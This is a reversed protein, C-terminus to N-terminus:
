SAVTWLPVYTSTNVTRVLKGQRPPTVPPQREHGEIEIVIDLQSVELLRMVGPTPNRLILRRGQKQLTIHSSAIAGVATSDASPM